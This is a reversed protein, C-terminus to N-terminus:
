KQASTKQEQCDREPEAAADNAIAAPTMITPTLLIVLDTKRRAHDRGRFIQGLIPLDGLVPVKTRDGPVTDQM